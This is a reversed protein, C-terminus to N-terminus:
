IDYGDTYLQRVQNWNMGKEGDEIYDCAIFISAKFGFKDMIPKAKSFISEYGRDFMLIVFKDEKKEKQEKTNDSFNNNNNHQFNDEFPTEIIIGYASVINSPVINSNVGLSIVIFFLLVAFGTFINM